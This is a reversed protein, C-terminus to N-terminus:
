APFNRDPVGFKPNKWSLIGWLPVTDDLGGFPVDKCPVPHTLTFVAYIPQDTRGTRTSFFPSFFPLFAFQPKVPAVGVIACLGFNTYPTKEPTYNRPEFKM